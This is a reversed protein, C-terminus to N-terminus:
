ALQTTDAAPALATRAADLRLAEVRRRQETARDALAAYDLQGLSPASRATDGLALWLGRKGEIGLSLAELAEFLRFDGGARDDLRLKIMTMKEAVWATAQRARSEAVGLSRMFRQLERRDIEIDARLEAAFHQVPKGSYARELHQLLEIAVISGALHDNLYIALYEDAMIASVM